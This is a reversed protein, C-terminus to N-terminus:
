LGLDARKDNVRKRLAEAIQQCRLALFLDLSDRYTRSVHWPCLRCM